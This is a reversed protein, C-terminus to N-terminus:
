RHQLSVYHSWWKARIADETIDLDYAPSTLPLAREVRILIATRVRGRADAVPADGREYFALIAEFLEGQDIVTARGKFRYGSRAIPDVVNVEIAPNARLNRVTQPSRLDAFVLHQDDWVATTGKPSLNPTGDPCVTAAFGLRQERIVRKMDETLVVAQREDHMMSMLLM